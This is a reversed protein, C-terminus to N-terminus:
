KRLRWFLIASIVMVLAAAPFYQYNAIHLFGEDTTLWNDQNVKKLTDWGKYYDIASAVFLTAFILNVVIGFIVM